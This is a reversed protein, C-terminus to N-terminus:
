IYYSLVIEQFDIFVELNTQVDDGDATGYYWGDPIGDINGPNDFSINDIYDDELKPFVSGLSHM